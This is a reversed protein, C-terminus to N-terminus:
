QCAQWPPNLERVQGFTPCTEDHAGRLYGSSMLFENVIEGGTFVFTKKSVQMCYGVARISEKLLASKTFQM